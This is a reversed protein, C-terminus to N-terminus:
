RFKSKFRIFRYILGDKRRSYEFGIGFNSFDIKKIFDFDGYLNFPRLFYRHILNKETFYLISLLTNRMDSHYPSDVQNLLVVTFNAVVRM